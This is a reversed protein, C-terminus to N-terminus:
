HACSKEYLERITEWGKDPLDKMIERVKQNEYFFWGYSAAGVNQSIIINCNCLKAQVVVHGFPEAWEPLHIFFKARSYLEPMKEYPIEGLIKCNPPARKQMFEQLPGSGAFHFSKDPNAAATVLVNLVGKTTSLRGAFLFDVNRELKSDQFLDVNMPSPMLLSLNIAGDLRALKQYEHLHLPSLFINCLSHLLLVSACEREMTPKQTWYALTYDHAWTIFPKQKSIWNLEEVKFRSINNFIVLDASAIEDRSYNEPTVLKCEHGKRRGIEMFWDIELQAGGLWEKVTFDNIFLVKL